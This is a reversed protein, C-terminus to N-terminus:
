VSSMEIEERIIACNVNISFVTKCLTSNFIVVKNSERFFYKRLSYGHVSLLKDAHESFEYRCSDCAHLLRFCNYTIASFRLHSEMLHCAHEFYYGRRAHIIVRAAEM